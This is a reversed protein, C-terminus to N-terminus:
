LSLCFVAGRFHLPLCLGAFSRVLGAATKVTVDAGAAAAAVVTAEEFVREASPVWVSVADLAM